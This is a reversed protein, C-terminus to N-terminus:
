DGGFEPKNKFGPIRGQKKTLESPATHMSEQVFLM